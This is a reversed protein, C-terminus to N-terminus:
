SAPKAPPEWLEIKIGDPDLIHAFRGFGEDPFLKLPEVGERKCRALMADLDDVCLNVMFDRTSPEVYDTDAKMANWITASGAERGTWPVSPPTM